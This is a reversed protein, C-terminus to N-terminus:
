VQPHKSGKSTQSKSAIHSSIENSSLGRKYLNYAPRFYSRKYQINWSYRLVVFTNYTKAKIQPSEHAFMSIKNMSQNDGFFEYKRHLLVKISGSSIHTKSIIRKRYPNADAIIWFLNTSICIDYCVLIWTKKNEYM